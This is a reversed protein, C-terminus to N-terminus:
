ATPKESQMKIGLKMWIIILNWRKEILQQNSKDNEKQNRYNNSPYSHSTTIHLFTNTNCIFFNVSHRLMGNVEM